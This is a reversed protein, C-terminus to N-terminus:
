TRIEYKNIYLLGAVIPLLSFILVYVISFGIPPYNSKPVIFMSPIKLNDFIRYFISRFNYFPLWKLHKDSIFSYLGPEIFSLLSSIIIAFISSKTILTLSLSYSGVTILYFLITFFQIILNYGTLSRLNGNLICIFLLFAISFILCFFSFIVVMLEKILYIKTRSMSRTNYLLTNWQFDNHMILSSAFTAFFVGYIVHMFLVCSILYGPFTINEIFSDNYITIIFYINFAIPFLLIYNKKIKKLESYLIKM